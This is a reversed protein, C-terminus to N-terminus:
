DRDIVCGTQADVYRAITKGMGLSRSRVTKANYDVHHGAVNPSVRTWEDCTEEDQEAVFICSCIEKAAFGSALQFLSNDYTHIDKNGGCGALLGALLVTFIARNM